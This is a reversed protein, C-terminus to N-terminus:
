KKIRFIHSKNMFGGEKHYESSDFTLTDKSNIIIKLKKDPGGIGYDVEATHSEKLKFTYTSDPFKTIAIVGQKTFDSTITTAIDISDYHKIYSDESVVKVDIPHGSDNQLIVNFGPDCSSLLISM